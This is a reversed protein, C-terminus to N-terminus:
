TAATCRAVSTSGTTPAAKIWTIFRIADGPLRSVGPIIHRTQRAFRCRERMSTRAAFGVAYCPRLQRARLVLRRVLRHYSGVEVLTIASFAVQDSSEAAPDFILRADPSLREDAFFYWILAHTDPVTLIM